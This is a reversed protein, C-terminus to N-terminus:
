RMLAKLSVDETSHRQLFARVERAAEPADAAIAAELVNRSDRTEKQRDWNALALSLARQPDDLLELVFRSEFRGHPLSGRRRIEEFRIALESRWQGVLASDGIRRAAIAARLLVGNDATHARLLPVVERERGRDLLFDAYARLLYADDSSNALAAQFFREARVANGITHAIMAQMTLLWQRTSASNKGAAMMEDLQEIATRARGTVGLLPIRCVREAFADVLSGLRDCAKEAAEYRGQVRYINALEVIAQRHDPVQQLLRELDATAMNYDHDKEHLKARLLAIEPPVDSRSWWRALVARAFGFYRPDNGQSGIALYRRALRGALEVNGPEESLRHRMRELADRGALLSRPLTELVADDSTPIISDNAIAGGTLAIAILFISAVRQLVRRFRRRCDLISLLWNTM